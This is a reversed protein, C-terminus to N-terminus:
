VVPLFWSYQSPSVFKNIGLPMRMYRNWWYKTIKVQRGSDSLMFDGLKDLYGRLTTEVGDAPPPKDAEVSAAALKLEAPAGQEAQPLLGCAERMKRETCGSVAYLEIIKRCDARSRQAEFGLQAHLSPAVASRSELFERLCPDKAFIGDPAADPYKKDLFEKDM